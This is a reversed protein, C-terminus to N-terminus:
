EETPCNSHERLSTFFKYNLSSDYIYLCLSWSLIFCYYTSLCIIWLWKHYLNFSYYYNGRLFKKFFPDNNCLLVCSTCSKEPDCNSSFGYPCCLVSKSRCDKKRLYLLNTTGSKLHLGYVHFLKERCKLLPLTKRMAHKESTKIHYPITTTATHSKQAHTMEELMIAKKLPM